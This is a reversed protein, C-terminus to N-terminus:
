SRAEGHAAKLEAEAQSLWPSLVFPEPAPYLQDADVDFVSLTSRRMEQGAKEDEDVLHGVMVGLEPFIDLRMRIAEIAELAEQLMAERYDRDEQGSPQHVQQLGARIEVFYDAVDVAVTVLEIARRVISPTATSEDLVTHVRIALKDALTQTRDIHAKLGAFDINGPKRDNM